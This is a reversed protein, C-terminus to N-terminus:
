LECVVCENLTRGIISKQVLVLSDNLKGLVVRPNREVVCNMFRSTLISQGTM